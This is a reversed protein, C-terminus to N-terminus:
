LGPGLISCVNWSFNNQLRNESNQYIMFGPCLPLIHFYASFVWGSSPGWLSILAQSSPQTICATRACLLLWVADVGSALFLGPSGQGEEGWDHPPWGVIVRSHLAVGIGSKMEGLAATSCCPFSYCTHSSVSSSVKLGNMFFGLPFLFSPFSQGEDHVLNWYERGECEMGTIQPNSIGSKKKLSFPM